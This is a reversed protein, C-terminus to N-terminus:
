VVWLESDVWRWTSSMVMGIWRLNASLMMSMDERLEVWATSSTVQSVRRGRLRQHVVPLDASSVNLGLTVKCILLWGTGLAEGVM